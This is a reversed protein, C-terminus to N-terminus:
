STWVPSHSNVNYIHFGPWHLSLLVARYSACGESVTRMNDKTKLIVLGNERFVPKRIWGKYCLDVGMDFRLESSQKNLCYHGKRELHESFFDVCHVARVELFHCNNRMYVETQKPFWYRLTVQGNWDEYIHMCWSGTNYLVSNIHFLSSSASENKLLRPLIRMVAQTALRRLQPEVYTCM